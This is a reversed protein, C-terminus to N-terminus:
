SGNESTVQRVASLFRSLMKTPTPSHLIGFPIAYDWKVPIVKMMPHICSWKGIVLLVKKEQECRNFAEMNYFDFTELAIKPHHETLDDRIEDMQRSWGRHMIMLTEGYLDEVTMKEKSALPHYISVAICIPEKSIEFGDCERLKLMTEDFIGAVVDIKDGLNKLIERANEPTNEFPVLQFSIDSCHKHIQPWLDTLLQAPTMPSTGIRIVQEQTLEASRAREVAERCYDTIYRADKYLSEGAKTLTLGRHTRDFLRVGLDNKLLNIQKILATSTIYLDEAAKNFSGAEAVRIFSTFNINNINM